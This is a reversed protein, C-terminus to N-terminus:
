KEEEASQKLLAGSRTQSSRSATSMRQLEPEVRDKYCSPCVGHTFRLESHAVIYAEVQQWYNQDNRVNKCYCCIPLIGQLQQVHTLAQELESVRNALAQQLAVMRLGVRDRARLEESDFPKTVYDSAGADLGAAIDGKEDRSTLLILYLSVTSPNARAQQCIQLGDMGPMMWDLIALPPADERQLAEWAESGDQTVVVEYGWKRLITDLLRRSIADDEAILIKM